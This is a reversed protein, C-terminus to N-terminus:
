PLYISFMSGGLSSNNELQIYGHQGNTTHLQAIHEAFYLGLQTSGSDLTITNIYQQPAVLMAEPYGPGDDEITIKLMNGSRRCDISASVTITKAYKTANLLVNHLVSSLLSHDIYWFIDLRQQITVTIGYNQFIHANRALQEEILEELSYEELRTFLQEQQLKYLGLLQMLDNNVRSAEYELTKIQASPHKDKSALEQISNIVMGLSNKMDHVSSALILSFDVASSTQNTKM